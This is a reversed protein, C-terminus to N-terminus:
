IMTATKNKTELTSIADHCGITSQTNLLRQLPPFFSQILHGKEGHRLEISYTICGKGTHQKYCWLGYYSDVVRM